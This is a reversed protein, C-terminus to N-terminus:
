RYMSIIGVRSLKSDAKAPLVRPDMAPLGTESVPNMGFLDVKLKGQTTGSMAGNAM